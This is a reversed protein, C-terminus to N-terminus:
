SGKPSCEVRVLIPRSCPVDIMHLVVNRLLSRRRTEEEGPRAGFTSAPSLSFPPTEGPPLFNVITPCSVCSRPYRYGDVPSAVRDTGNNFVPGQSSFLKLKLLIPLIRSGTLFNSPELGAINGSTGRLISGEMRPSSPHVSPSQCLAARLSSARGSNHSRLLPCESM